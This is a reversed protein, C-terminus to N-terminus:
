TGTAWFGTRPGADRDRVLDQSGEASSAHAL